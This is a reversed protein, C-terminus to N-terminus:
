SSDNQNFVNGKLELENKKQNGQSLKNQESNKGGCFDFSFSIGEDKKVNKNTNGIEGLSFAIDEGIAEDLDQNRTAANKVM